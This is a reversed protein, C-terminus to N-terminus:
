LINYVTANKPVENENIQYDSFHLMLQQIPIANTMNHAIHVDLDFGDIRSARVNNSKFSEKSWCDLTRYASCHKWFLLHKKIEDVNASYYKM